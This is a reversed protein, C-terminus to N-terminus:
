TTGNVLLDSVIKNRHGAATTALQGIRLKVGGLQDDEIQSRSVAVGASFTLITATFGTDTMPTFQQEDLFQSMSPAAGAWAYKENNANSSVMTAVKDVWIQSQKSIFEKLLLARLGKELLTPNYTQM